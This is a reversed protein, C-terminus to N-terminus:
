AIETVEDSAEQTVPVLQTPDVGASILANNVATFLANSTITASSVADLQTSQAAVIADPLTKLVEGGISPTENNDTVTISEIRNESLTVEVALHGMGYAEGTYVGPVFTNEAVAVSAALMMCVLLLALFKKKM